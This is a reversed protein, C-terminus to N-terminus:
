HHRLRRRRGLGALGVVDDGMPAADQAGFQCRGRNPDERMGGGRIGRGKGALLM